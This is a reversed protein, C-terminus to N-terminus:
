DITRIPIPKHLNWERRDFRNNIRKVKINVKGLDVNCDDFALDVEDRKEKTWIEANLGLRIAWSKAYDIGGGSWIVMKCGQSEFWRFLAINEYNPTDVDFTTAGSPVILTDDVDFAVVLRKTLNEHCLLARGCEICHPDRPDDVLIIRDPSPDCAKCNM